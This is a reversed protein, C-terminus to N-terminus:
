CVILIDRVTPFSLQLIHPTIYKIISDGPLFMYIYVFTNIKDFTSFYILHTMMWNIHVDNSRKEKAFIGKSCFAIFIRNITKTYTVWKKKTRRLGYRWRRYRKKEKRKKEERGIGLKMLRLKYKRKKMERSLSLSYAYDENMKKEVRERMDNNM